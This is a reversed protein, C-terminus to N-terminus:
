FDTGSGLRIQDWASPDVAALWILAAIGLLIALGMLVINVWAIWRTATNLSRGELRGGAADIERRSQAAVVLAAIALVVPCLVWSAVALVLGVIAKTDTQVVGPYSPPPYGAPPYGPAGYGGAPYGAAPAPPYGPAAYGPAPPPMAGPQGPGPQGYGAPGPQRYGEGQDAGGPGATWAPPQPGATWAPSQAAASPGPAPAPAPPAAWGGQDPPPAGWGPAQGAPQGPGAEAPGGAPPPVQWTPAGPQGGPQEPDPPAADVGDQRGEAEDSPSPSLASPDVPEDSGPQLSM